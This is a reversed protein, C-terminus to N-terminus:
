KDNLRENVLATISKVNKFNDPIIDDPSLENHLMEEEIRNVLMMLSLSDLIETEILNTEADIEVVVEDSKLVELVMDRVKCIDIM